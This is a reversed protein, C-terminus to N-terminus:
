FMNKSVIRVSVYVVFVPFPSPGSFRKAPCLIFLFSACRLEKLKSTGTLEGDKIDVGETVFAYCACKM